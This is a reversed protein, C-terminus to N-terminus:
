QFMNRPREPIDRTHAGILLRTYSYEGQMSLRGPAVVMWTRVDLPVAQTNSPRFACQSETKTIRDYGCPPYSNDWIIRLGNDLFIV